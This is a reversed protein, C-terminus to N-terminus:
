KNGFSLVIKGDKMEANIKKDEAPIANKEDKEKQRNKGIIYGAAFAIAIEIIYPRM